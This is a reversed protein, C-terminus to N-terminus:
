PRLANRGLADWGAPAVAPEARVRELSEDRSFGRRQRAQARTEGRAWVVSCRGSKEMLCLCFWKRAGAFPHKKRTRIFMHRRWGLSVNRSFGRPQRTQARPEGEGAWVAPRSRSRLRGADSRMSREEWFAVFFEQGRRKPCSNAAGERCSRNDIGDVAAAGAAPM